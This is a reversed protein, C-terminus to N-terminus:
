KAGDYKFFGGGAKRGLRGERVMKEVLKCPKYKPDKTRKYLNNMIALFVDLGILDILALPGIPHNLGLKAATDIDEASAVGEDLAYVAENLYPMLMRNVVFCPTDKTVVPVKNLAKAFGLAYDLVADSTKAGRVVEVLRMKQAPNFFHLGVVRSPISVASALEDVSLSSTNTAFVTKKGCVGSLASFLKKKADADEVVSEIVIDADKLDHLDATPRIRGMIKKLDDPQSSKLLNKEIKKKARQAADRSRSKLIVSFGASAAVQAIGVGM